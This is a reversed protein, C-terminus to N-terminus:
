RNNLMKAITELQEPSIDDRPDAHFTAFLYFGNEGRKYIHASMYGAVSQAQELAQAKDNTTLTIEDGCEVVFSFASLTKNLHNTHAVELRTFIDM